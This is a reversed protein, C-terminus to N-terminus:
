GLSVDHSLFLRVDAGANLLFELCKDCDYITKGGNIKGQRGGKPGWCSSHIAGRGRDDRWHIREKNEELVKLYNEEGGFKEVLKTREEPSLSEESGYEFQKVLWEVVWYKGLYAAKILPSRKIGNISWIDAGNKKLIELMKVDSSYVACYFISSDFRDTWNVNAGHSILIKAVAYNRKEVAYYLPTMYFNDVCDPNCGHELLLCILLISYQPYLRQNLNAICHLLCPKSKHM